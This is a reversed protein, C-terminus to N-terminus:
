HTMKAFDDLSLSNRECMYKPKPHGGLNKVHDKVNVSFYITIVYIEFLYRIGLVIGIHVGDLMCVM